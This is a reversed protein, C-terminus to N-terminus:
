PPRPFAGLLRGQTAPGIKEPGSGQWCRAEPEGKRAKRYVRERSEYETGFVPTRGAARTDTGIRAPHSMVPTRRM